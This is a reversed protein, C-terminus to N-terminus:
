HHPHAHYQRWAWSTKTSTVGVGLSQWSWTRKWISSPMHPHYQMWPFLYTLGSSILTSWLETRSIHPRSDSLPSLTWIKTLERSSGVMNCRLEITNIVTGFAQLSSPNRISWKSIHPRSMGPPITDSDSHTWWPKGHNNISNHVTELHQLFLISQHDTRFIHSISDPPPPADPNQHTRWSEEDSRLVVECQKLPRFLHFTQTAKNQLYSMLRLLPLPCIDTLERANRVILPKILKTINWPAPPRFTNKSRMRSTHWHLVGPVHLVCLLILKKNNWKILAEIEVSNLPM